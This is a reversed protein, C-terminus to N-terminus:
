LSHPVIGFESDVCSLRVHTSIVAEPADVLEIVDVLVSRQKRNGLVMQKTCVPKRPKPREPVLSFTESESTDKAAINVFLKLRLDVPGQAFCMNHLTIRKDRGEM